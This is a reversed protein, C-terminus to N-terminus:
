VLGWEEASYQRMDLGATPPTKMDDSNNVIRFIKGDKVRKLVEHYDLQVRKRVTVTYAGIAGMSEAIKQQISTNMVVACRITIGETWVNITGGYGDDAKTKNMIKFEEFANDLLSM